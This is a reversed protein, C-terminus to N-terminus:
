GVLICFTCNSSICHVGFVSESTPPITKFFMLVSKFDYKLVIATVLVIKVLMSVTKISETSM